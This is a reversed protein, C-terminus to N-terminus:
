IHILSLGQSDEDWESFDDKDDKTAKLNKISKSPFKIIVNLPTTGGLDDDIKKMGKYIETDQDFYNIFSNEVELKLIGFISVIIILISIGYVISQNNKALSGLFGTIKSKEVIMINIENDSSFISLLSPLLFFTVSISIILGLTM